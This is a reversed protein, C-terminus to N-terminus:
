VINKNRYAVQANLASGQSCSEAIQNGGHYPKRVECPTFSRQRKCLWFQLPSNDLFAAEIAGRFHYALQCCCDCCEQKVVDHHFQKTFIADGCDGDYNVRLKQQVSQIDTIGNANSWHNSEVISISVINLLFFHESDAHSKNGCCRYQYEGNGHEATGM